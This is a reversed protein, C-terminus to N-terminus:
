EPNRPGTAMDMSTKDRSWSPEGPTGISGQAHFYYPSGSILHALADIASTVMHCAHYIPGSVKVRTSADIVAQRCTGLSDLLRKAALEDLRDPKKRYSPM